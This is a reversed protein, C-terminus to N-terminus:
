SCETQWPIYHIWDNRLISKIMETDILTWWPNDTKKPSVNNPHIFLVTFTNDLLVHIDEEPTNWTFIGDMGIDIEAFKNIKWLEKRYFLSSGSLWTRLHGPYKYNFSQQSELNYYLLNNIGCLRSATMELCKLQYTIRGRAYWDDDDWHAIIEGKAEFCGINLKQGLTLKRDLRIYRILPNEPILDSIPDDGDDIIILEKEPYDQFLFYRIALPVFKRRNFTPM